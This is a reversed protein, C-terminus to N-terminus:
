YYDDAVLDNIESVVTTVEESTDPTTSGSSTMSATFAYECMLTYAVAAAFLAFGNIIRLNNFKDYAARCTNDFAYDGIYETGAICFNL